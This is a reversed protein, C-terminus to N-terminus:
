RTRVPDPPRVPGPRPDERIRRLVEEIGRELQPDRGALVSEADNEVVIDPDVGHGEIIWSGDVDNTAFEPVRVDGGDILPGHSTIGIVGGWSRKGILPGLGAQKFRAAFIDGDSASNESVLCVLHGLFVENPYTRFDDVTRSFRTGLLKRSLREILMQSVNGGGNGRVDVVLGEKRMQPYYWKIFESIGASSMDPVHLYGVRGETVEEVRARNGEVWDLYRLKSEDRIPRYVVKRAGEGDPSDGLLLEVPRAAKHRLLRYPNDGASLDEGDIALLYDGERAGVGVETLPSRYEAEENHGKLISAIRYRGSESDLELEAGMLAVGPREPAEYDGGSIYAHGVNLEAIMEGIVYNLDSRHKVHALWPRYRDRIAEWDYGHMNEVYFFDRYRRWVEEFIAEWEEAPVLDVEARALSITKPGKADAKADYLKYSGGQRVLLKKGDASLSFNRAGTVAKLEREELDFIKIEPEADSDRGYYFPPQRVFLLAGELTRLGSYNDAPVPVPAVRDALGDFDIGIPDATEQADDEEDAADTDDEGSSEDADEASDAEEVEAEDSEPPFPHPVDKRLALAFIGTQRNTAFNWEARSILPSFERDSLFYLYDGKAGWAPTFEDFTSGGVQHLREEGVDWIFISNVRSAVSVTFALYGGKPSWRYDTIRGRPEDAIQQVDRSEVDLVYAKGEKDSFALRRSDPSWALRYLRGRVGTTLQEIEGGLHDVVHVQEEGSVDSVFAIRSGDPSWSPLREHAGSTRTLNRTPGKEAPVTFIDGRASFVARRGKPSLSYSEVDGAASVRRPRRAVGDSPVEIRVERSRESQTDFVRLEGNLEYVIRRRSDTAPWRVDWVSERTLQRTRKSETEYRYLNLTGDRDSAFFVDGGIWMPDRDSRIHETIRTEVGADRDFIYLDQAWGGQYRKWARFDRFLPSYAVRRGDASLDGAGSVPMELPVPLGGELPVTYLRGDKAAWYSRTSRFLVASGDPTWGYVHHDYGWRPAMPGRAPYFTLQRPEGGAAPVVYVQEDGDYQGTFAIWKGDPSFKPFLELGSHATLRVARGGEDPATWIDGAYVFAILDGHIDPYRLLKTQAPALVVLIQLFFLVRLLMKRITAASGANSAPSGRPVVLAASAAGREAAFDSAM